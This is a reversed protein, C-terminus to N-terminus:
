RRRTGKRRPLRRYRAVPGGKTAHTKAHAYRRLRPNAWFLQWQARSKFGAHRVRAM